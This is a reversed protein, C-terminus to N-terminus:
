QNVVETITSIKVNSLRDLIRQGAPTVIVISLFIFIALPSRVACVKLIKRWPMEAYPSVIMRPGEQKSDQRRDYLGILMRLSISVGKSLDGHSPCVDGTPAQELISAQREAQSVLVNRAARDELEETM